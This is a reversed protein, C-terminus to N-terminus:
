GLINDFCVGHLFLDKFIQIYKEVDVIEHFSTYSNCANDRMCYKRISIINENNLYALENIMTQHCSVVLCINGM